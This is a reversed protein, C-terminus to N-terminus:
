GHSHKRRRAAGAIAAGTGVAVAGLLATALLDTGTDAIGGSTATISGDGGPTDLGADTSGAASVTAAVTVTDGQVTVPADVALAVRAQLYVHAPIARAPDTLPVAAQTLQDIATAPLISHAGAVCGAATWPQTCSALEVTTHPGLSALAGQARLYGVLTDLREVRTTIGIRWFAPAGPALTHVTGPPDTALQLLPPDDGQTLTAATAVDPTQVASAASAGLVLAAGLALGGAASAWATLRAHGSEAQPPAAARATPKTM